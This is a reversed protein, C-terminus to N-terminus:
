ICFFSIPFRSCFPVSFRVDTNYTSIFFRPIISFLLHFVSPVARNGALEDTKRRTLVTTQQVENRLEAGGGWVGETLGKKPSVTAYLYKCNRRVSFVCTM